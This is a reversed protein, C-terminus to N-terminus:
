IQRPRSVPTDEILRNTGAKVAVTKVKNSEVGSQAPDSIDAAYYYEAQARQRNVDMLIFGKNNLDTYKMHPNVVPLIASVLQAAGEPFGPSTVSPTM